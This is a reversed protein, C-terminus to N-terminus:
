SARGLKLSAIPIAGMFLRNLYERLPILRVTDIVESAFAHILMRSATEVDLGRSRMYFLTDEDMHGATAGHGCKVDDAFILLSPKSDVEADESLLLNKDTQQADTKQAEKRVMVNGGFVARSHGDLIGKYFLRSTGHPKAHDINIFNDMH